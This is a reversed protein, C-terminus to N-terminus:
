TLRFGPDRLEGRGSKIHNTIKKLKMVIGIKENNEVSRLNETRSGLNQNNVIPM